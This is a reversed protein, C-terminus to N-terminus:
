KKLSSQQKLYPLKVLWEKQSYIKISKKGSMFRISQIKTSTSTSSEKIGKNISKKKSNTITQSQYTLYDSKKNNNKKKMFSRRKKRKSDGKLAIGRICKLSNTNPLKFNWNSNKRLIFIINVNNQTEQLFKLDYTHSNM